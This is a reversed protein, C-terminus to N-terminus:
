GAVILAQPAAAKMRTTLWALQVQTQAQCDTVVQKLEADRLGAAAQLLLVHTDAVLTALLHLDQLDRLLGLPGSRPQELAVAHLREPEDDPQEGYRQVVPALAAVHEDCQEALARCASLVDPEDAHGEAVVRLSDALVAEAGQLLGIYVALMM